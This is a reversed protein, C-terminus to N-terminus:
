RIRHIPKWHAQVAGELSQAAARLTQEILQLRTAAFTAEPGVIAVSAVPEGMANRVAHGVAGINPVVRGLSIGYGAAESERIMMRLSRLRRADFRGLERLNETIIRRSEARPRAVLIAAGSVSTLLPRRTGVEITMAPLAKGERAVCVFDSDSRLSVIAVANLSRALRALPAKCADQFAAHNRMSVGLEFLLAGGVYRRDPRQAALRARVLGGLIRHTTSRDLACHQALDLLRWGVAGRAALHKLVLVARDISQTGPRETQAM